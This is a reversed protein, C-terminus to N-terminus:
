DKTQTQDNQEDPLEKYPELIRAPAWAIVELEMDGRDLWYTRGDLDDEYIAQWVEFGGPVDKPRGTVFLLDSYKYSCGVECAKIPTDPLGESVPIWEARAEAEPLAALKKELTRQSIESDWIYSERVIRLADSLRILKDKM